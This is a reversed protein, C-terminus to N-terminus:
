KNKNITILELYNHDFITEDAEYLDKLQEWDEPTDLVFKYMSQDVNNRINRITFKEKNAYFYSTIHESQDGTFNRVHDSFVKHGILEVAIGYPFTRELINTVLDPKTDEQYTSLAKKLLDPQLFPSDANIRFFAECPNAQLCKDTRDAVNDLDGRFIDVNNAACWRAIPDDTARDSTAVITHVGDIKALKKVVIGLITTNGLEFLVKGPLRSSNYRAFILANFKMGSLDARL